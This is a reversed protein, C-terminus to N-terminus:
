KVGTETWKFTELVVNIANDIDESPSLFLKSFLAVFRDGVIAYYICNVGSPHKIEYVFCLDGGKTYATKELFSGGSNFAARQFFQRYNDGIQQSESKEYVTSKLEEEMRPPLYHRSDEEFYAKDEEDVYVKKKLSSKDEMIVINGPIEYSYYQNEVRQRLKSKASKESPKKNMELVPGFGLRERFKQLILPSNFKKNLKFMYVFNDALIEEPSIIYSTNMGVKEFFNSINKVLLRKSRGNEVAVVKRGDVDDLELFVLYVFDVNENKKYLTEYENKVLFVPIVDKEEGKVIGKFYYDFHVADPNALKTDFIDPPLSIDNCKFFGIDSYLVEKIEPNNKTFIHFLEHTLTDELKAYGTEGNQVMAYEIGKVPCVISSLGKTYFAQESIPEDKGNTKILTVTKPFKMVSPRINRKISFLCSEVVRKEDETWDLTTSRIKKLYKKATFGNQGESRIFFDAKGFSNVFDDQVALLSVGTKKTAFVFEVEDIPVLNENAFLITGAVFCVFLSFCKKM